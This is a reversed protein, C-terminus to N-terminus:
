ERGDRDRRDNRRQKMLAIVADAKKDNDLWTDELILKIGAKLKGQASAGSVLQQFHMPGPEGNDLEMQHDAVFHEVAASVNQVHDRPSHGPRVEVTLRRNTTPEGPFAEFRVYASGFEHKLNTVLENLQQKGEAMWIPLGETKDSSVLDIVAQRGEDNSTVDVTFRTTSGSYLPTEQAM